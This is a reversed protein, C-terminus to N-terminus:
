QFATFRSRIDQAESGLQDQDLIKQQSYQGQAFIEKRGEMRQSKENWIQAKADQYPQGSDLFKPDLFCSSHKRCGKGSSQPGKQQRAHLM